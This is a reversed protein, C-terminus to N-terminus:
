CPLDTQPKQCVCATRFIIRRKPRSNLQEALEEALPCTM